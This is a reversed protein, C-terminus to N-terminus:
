RSKKNEITSKINREHELNAYSSINMLLGLSLSLIFLSSGGYSIFPLTVGTIPIMGSVGGLNIFMQIGIMGSIGFALLSGFPDKSKMGIYFGKLILYGLSLIVFVVGFVGLEEAIIAMIFDTHAEPLFGLKQISKGLGVGSWGGSGLALYSNVLQLGEDVEYKFPDRFSYLRGMREETFIDDHKWLILPSFIAIFIAGLLLLRGLNKWNMGSCFVILMGTSFLIAATGLDPQLVILFTVFVLFVIPPIVGRNFDNIYPQKKAYVASLYIITGLKVFEAPQINRVGVRLWSTANNVNSGMFLVFMLVVISGFFILQIFGTSKLKKYPIIAAFVFAVIAILLNILQRYFFYTSSLGYLQIATVMSASYVMILGFISVLLYVVLISYDYSKLRKKLM